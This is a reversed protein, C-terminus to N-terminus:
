VWNNFMNSLSSSLAGTSSYTSAGRQAASSIASAKEAIQETYSFKGSLMSKVDKADANKLKDEDVSMKGDSDFTIGIKSLSNSMTDSFSTMFGTQMSVDKAKVKKAQGIVDNYQSAMDKVAKTIKTMDYKGDKQKWLDDKGLAEASKKLGDAESKMQTLGTEDLLNQKKKTETKETKDTKKPTSEKELAYHKKVLKRYSGNKISAYDAFNFSSMAGGSKFSSFLTSINFNSM